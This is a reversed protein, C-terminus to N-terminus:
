RAGSTPSRAVVPRRRVGWFRIIGGDGASALLLGRRDFAITQVRGQHGDRSALRKGHAADWVTVSGDWGGAALLDGAANYQVDRVTTRYGHLAQVLGQTGTDYVRIAPGDSGAALRRDDRSFAVAWTATEQGTLSGRPELTKGTWLSASEGNGVAILQGDHSFAVPWAEDVGGVEGLLAGSARSWRRLMGDRAASVFAGGVPDFAIGWIPARHAHPVSFLRERRTLGWGQITGDDGGGVLIEGDPSIALSHYEITGELVDARGTALSWLMVNRAPGASALTADNGYFLVRNILGRVGPDCFTALGELRDASRATLPELESRVPLPVPVCPGGWRASLRTRLWPVALLLAALVAVPIVGRRMPSSSEQMEVSELPSMDARQGRFNVRSNGM